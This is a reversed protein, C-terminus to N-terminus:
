NYVVQFCNRGSLLLLAYVGLFEEPFCDSNIAPNERRNKKKETVTKNVSDKKTEVNFTNYPNAHKLAMSATHNYEATHVM